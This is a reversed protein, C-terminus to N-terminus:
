RGIAQTPSKTKVMDGADRQAERDVNGLPLLGHQVVQALDRRSEIEGRRAAPVVHQGMHLHADGFEVRSM